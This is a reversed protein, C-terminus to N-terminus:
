RKKAAKRLAILGRLLKRAKSDQPPRAGSRGPLIARVAMRLPAQAADRLMIADGSNLHALFRAPMM